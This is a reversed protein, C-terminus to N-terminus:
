IQQKAQDMMGRVNMVKSINSMITSSSVCSYLNYKNCRFINCHQSNGDKFYWYDTVGQKTKNKQSVRYMQHGEHTRTQVWVYWCLWYWHANWTCVYLLKTVNSLLRDFQNVTLIYVVHIDGVSLSHCIFYESLYYLLCAIMSQM